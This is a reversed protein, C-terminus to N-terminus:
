LKETTGQSVPIPCEGKAVDLFGNRGGEPGLGRGRHALDSDPSRGLHSQAAGRPVPLHTPLPLWPVPPSSFPARLAAQVAPVGRGCSQLLPILFRTPSEHWPTSLLKWGLLDPGTHDATAQGGWLQSCLFGARHSDWGM